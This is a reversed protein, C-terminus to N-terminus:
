EEKEEDNRQDAPEKNEDTSDDQNDPEQEEPKVPDKNEKEKKEEQEKAIEIAKQDAEDLPPLEEGNWLKEFEEGDIKEREILVAATKHMLDMHEELTKKATAM